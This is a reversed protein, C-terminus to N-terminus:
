LLPLLIPSPFSRPHYLYHPGLEPIFGVFFQSRRMKLPVRLFLPSQSSLPARHASYGLPVSPSFNRVRFSDELLRRFFVCCYWGNDLLIQRLTSWYYARDALSVESSCSPPAQLGANGQPPLPSPPDERFIPFGRMLWSSPYLSQRYSSIHTLMVCPM